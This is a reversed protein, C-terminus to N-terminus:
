PKSNITKHKINFVPQLMVLGFGSVWFKLDSVGFKNNRINQEQM